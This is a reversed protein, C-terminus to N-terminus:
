EMEQSYFFASMSSVLVLRPLTHTRRQRSATHSVAVCLWELLSTSGILDAPSYVRVALFFNVWSFMMNEFDHEVGSQVQLLSSEVGCYWLM